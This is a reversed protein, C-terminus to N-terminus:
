SGKGYAKKRLALQQDAWAAPWQIFRQKSREARWQERAELGERYNQVWKQAEPSLDETEIDQRYWQQLEGRSPHNRPLDLVSILEPESVEMQPKFWEQPEAPAHAIFYDRLTIDPVVLLPSLTGSDGLKSM